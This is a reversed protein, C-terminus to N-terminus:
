SRCSFFSTCIFSFIIIIVFCLLLMKYACLQAGGKGSKGPFSVLISSYMLLKSRSLDFSTCIPLVLIYGSLLNLPAVTKSPCGPIDIRTRISAVVMSLLGKLHFMPVFFFPLIRFSVCLLTHQTHLYLQRRVLNTLRFYGFSEVSFRPLIHVLKASGETARCALQGSPCDM